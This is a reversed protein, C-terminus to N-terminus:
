KVKYLKNNVLIGFDKKMRAASVSSYVIYDTKTETDCTSASKVVTLVVTFSKPTLFRVVPDKTNEDTGFQYSYDIGVVMEPFSWTYTLGTGESTNTFTVDEVITLATKDALFAAICSKIDLTITDVVASGINGTEPDKAQVSCRVATPDTDTFTVKFTSSTTGGSVTYDTNEDGNDVSWSYALSDYYGGSIELSYTDEVGVVPTEDGTVEVSTPPGYATIYDTKTETDNGQSNTAKLSVTFTGGDYDHSPAATTSTDGDGFTWLYTPPPCGTTTNTFTVSLPLATGTTPTGSFASSPASLSKTITVSAALNLIVDDGPAGYSGTSINASFTITGSTPSGFSKTFTGSPTSLDTWGDGSHAMRAAMQSSAKSLAYNISYSTVCDHSATSTFRVTIWSGAYSVKQSATLTEASDNYSAGTDSISTVEYTFGSLTM